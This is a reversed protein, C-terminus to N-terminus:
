SVRPRHHHAGRRHDGAKVSRRAPTEAVRRHGDTLTRAPDRESEARLALTALEAAEPAADLRQLEGIRVALGPDVAHGLVRVEFHLHPGTSRGTSGVRGIVANAPLRQGREVEIRSLHAYRTLLGSGHRVDISRGYGRRRGAFVVEGDGAVYVPTGHAARFDTGRHFRRRRHRIPDDRWGFGSSAVGRVPEAVLVSLDPLASLGALAPAPAVSPGAAEDGDDVLPQDLAAEDEAESEQGAGGEAPAAAAEIVEVPTFGAPVGLGLARPPAVLTLGLALGAAMSLSRRLGEIIRCIPGEIL